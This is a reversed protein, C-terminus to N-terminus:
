YRSCFSDLRKKTNVTSKLKPIYVYKKDIKANFDGMTIKVAKDGAEDNM